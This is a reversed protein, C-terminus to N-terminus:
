STGCTQTGEPHPEVAPRGPAPAHSLFSEGRTSLRYGVKLSETLGLGKLKRVNAKFRATEWGLSAALDPARTAPQQDILDLFARTWAGAHARTDMRDLREALEAYEARSLADDRGEPQKVLGDGLYHFEVRYLEGTSGPRKSLEAGLAEVSEFGAQRAERRTIRSLPARTVADVQIAGVPHINYVGGVKVQPQKWARFSLTVEGARIKLKFAKRLLVLSSRPLRSTSGDALCPQISGDALVTFSLGTGEDVNVVRTLLVGNAFLNQPSVYVDGELCKNPDHLAINLTRGAPITSSYRWLNDDVALMSRREEWDIWIFHLHVGFTVQKATCTQFNVGPDLNTSARYEFTVATTATPTVATPTSPGGGGCASVIAALCAVSLFLAPHATPRTM